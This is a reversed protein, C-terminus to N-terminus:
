LRCPRCLQNPRGCRRLFSYGGMLGIAALLPVVWHALGYGNVDWQDFARRLSDM